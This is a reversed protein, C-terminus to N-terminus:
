VMHKCSDNDHRITTTPDLQRIGYRTHTVRLDKKTPLAIRHMCLLSACKGGACSYLSQVIHSYATATCTMTNFYSAIVSNLVAVIVAFKPIRALLEQSFARSTGEGSLM